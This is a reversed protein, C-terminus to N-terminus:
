VRARLASRPIRSALVKLDPEANWTKIREGENLM